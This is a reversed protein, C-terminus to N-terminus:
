TVAADRAVADPVHQDLLSEGMGRARKAALVDGEGAAVISGKM